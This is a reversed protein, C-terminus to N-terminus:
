SRQMPLGARRRGAEATADAEDKGSSDLRSRRRSWPVKGGSASNTQLVDESVGM